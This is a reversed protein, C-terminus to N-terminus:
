TGYILILTSFYGIDPTKNVTAGGHDHAGANGTSGGHAHNQGDTIRNAGGGTTTNSQLTQGAGSITHDHGGGSNINHNHIVKPDRTGIALGDNTGTTYDTDERSGLVYRKRYDPIGFTTVGDGGHTTGYIAYLNPHDNILATGGRAVIWPYPIDEADPEYSLYKLEGPWYHQHNGPAAQNARPGLTHHVADTAFDVDSKAHAEIFAKKKRDDAKGKASKSNSGDKSSYFSDGKPSDVKPMPGSPSPEGPAISGYGSLNAM